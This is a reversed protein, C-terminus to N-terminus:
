LLFETLLKMKATDIIGNPVTVQESPRRLLEALTAEDLVQLAKKQCTEAQMRVAHWSSSNFDMTRHDFRYDRM